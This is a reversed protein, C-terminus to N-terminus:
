AKIKEVYPDAPGIAIVNYGQDRLAKMTNLRFNYIYWSTNAFVAINM